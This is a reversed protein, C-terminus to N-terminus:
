LPEFGSECPGLHCPRAMFTSTVLLSSAAELSSALASAGSDEELRLEGGVEEGLHM